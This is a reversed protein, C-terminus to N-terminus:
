ENLLINLYVKQIRKWCDYKRQRLKCGMNYQTKNNEIWAYIHKKNQIYPLPM